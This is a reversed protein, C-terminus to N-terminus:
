MPRRRTRSAYAELLPGYAGTNLAWIARFRGARWVPGSTVLRLEEYYRHLDPDVICNDGTEISRVYGAPVDRFLHGRGWNSETNWAPLRALLADSLGLDDITYVQPGNVFGHFGIAGWVLVQPPAHRMRQGIPQPAWGVDYRHERLVALLGLTPAYDGREDRIGTADHPLSPYTGVSTVPPHPGTLSVLICATGAAAAIRGRRVVRAVVLAALLLPLAFMRGSMYDGGIRVAYALYALIGALPLLVRRDPRSRIAVVAGAVLAAAIIPLTAHDWSQSNEFYVAANRHFWPAMQGGNLKAYATNPFPFGYYVVSFATWAAVPLVGSALPRVIRWRLVRAHHWLVWCLPPAVVLAVDARNLYALGCVVVLLAV